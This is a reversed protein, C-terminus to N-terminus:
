NPMWVRMLSFLQNLNLPKSIYDSAGAELCKQRDNKMAKATLAIIPIRDLALSGRIAKMTEYGDMEPMMIDMLILDFDAKRELENLAVQGNMATTVAMGHSELAARVAFLNRVDDDVILVQRGQFLAIEAATAQSPDVASRYEGDESSLTTQDSAAATEQEASTQGGAAPGDEQENEEAEVDELEDLSPLVPNRTWAPTAPEEPQEDVLRTHPTQDPHEIPVYLVFTSGEGEVSDMIIFGGLIGAFERCISLGLGTGGYKRSTAGDAQRFAEFIQSQKEKPVGIGTDSVAFAVYDAFEDDSGELHQLAYVMSTATPVALNARSIASRLEALKPQYLKIGVSGQETFKIANAMLNKLIQNLRQEDSYIVEPVQPDVETTLELAKKQAIPGFNWSMVNAIEPVHIDRLELTMKGAEVKSLDLIDNILSLLDKGSNYIVQCFEAEEPKMSNQSNEMLMQSLILISNLPTRLEHSMNALFESKYRSNQELDLNKQELERRIRNLEEARQLILSNQEELQENSIKLEESQTQLEESQSQMEVAQTQLEESQAQLEETLTQSEVLLREIEMRRSINDITVGLRETLNTVLREERETFRLMSAFEVVALTKGRFVIPAVLLYRAPSAGLGSSVQVYDSPVEDILLVRQDLICQGLLGQGPLVVQRGVLEGDAAYASMKVYHEREGDDQIMYLASYVAGVLPVAKHIFREALTQLDMIEQYMISMEAINTQLFNQEQVRATYARESDRFGELQVVMRNFSESIAGIEDNTRIDLRPLSGEKSADVRNMGDVVQLLSKTTSRIVWLAIIISIVIFVLSSIVIMSITFLHSREYAIRRDEMLNKQYEIFSTTTEMLPTISQFNHDRIIRSALTWDGGKVAEMFNLQMTAYKDFDTELLRVSVKGQETNVLGRLIEIQSIVKRRGAELSELHRTVNSQDNLLLAMESDISFVLARIETIVDVKGLRDKSIEDMNGKLINLMMIAVTLLMLMLLLILGFGLFQKRKFGV